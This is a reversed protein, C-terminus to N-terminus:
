SEKVLSKVAELLKAVELIYGQEKLSSFISVEFGKAVGDALVYVRDKTYIAWIEKGLKDKLTIMKQISDASLTTTGSQSYLVLGGEKVGTAKLGMHPPNIYDGAEFEPTKSHTSSLLYTQDYSEGLGLTIFAGDFRPTYHRGEETDVKVSELRVLSIDASKGDKLLTVSGESKEDEVKQSFFKLSNILEIDAKKDKEYKFDSDVQAVLKPLLYNQVQEKYKSNIMYYSGVLVFFGLGLIPLLNSRFKIFFLLFIAFVVLAISGFKKLEVMRELELTNLLNLIDTNM